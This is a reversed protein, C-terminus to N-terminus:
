ATELVSQAARQGSEVASEVCGVNLVSQTWDGALKLNEFGSEEPPIRYKTTGAGSLVYRDTALNNIRVYRQDIPISKPWLHAAHHDLWVRLAQYAVADDAADGNEEAPGWVGCLYAASRPQHATGWSEMAITHSMDSWTEFPPAFATSIPSGTNWGMESLNATSWLQAAVTATSRVHAFMQEWRSDVRSLDPAVHRLVDLPLGAIVVDFDRGCKLWFTDNAPKTDSQPEFTPSTWSDALLQEYRPTSPWCRLGQVEILPHYCNSGIQAQRELCISGVRSHGPNLKLQLVRHFFEFKVGRQRLLDYLPAFVVDGMGAIMKYMMAGRYGVATRLSLRLAVGAALNMQPLPDLDRAFVFDHLGRVLASACTAPAAGHRALWDVYREENLADFGRWPVGDRMLGCVNTLMLEIFVALRRQKHGDIAFSRAMDRIRDRLFSTTWILLDALLESCPLNRELWQGLVRLVSRLTGHIGVKSGLNLLVRFREPIEPVDATSSNALGKAEGDLSMVLSRVLNLSGWSLRLPTYPSVHDGPAGPADKAQFIWPVWVSGVQEHLVIQRQPLFGDRWHGLKSSVSGNLEDFCARMMRFANDYFGPWVHLGHEEIRAHCQLNRGSAGKGGLRWGMQYVTIEFHRRWDPLQTLHYVASLAGAGGGLVVIRRLRRQRM